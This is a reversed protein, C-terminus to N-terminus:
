DIWVVKEQINGREGPLSIGEVPVGLYMLGYCREGEELYPISDKGIIMKPSSWYCGLNMATCSLYMNQIACSLAALEEWEPISEAPDRRVCLAIVHSSTLIKKTIRKKKNENYKEPSITESYRKSMFDALSELASGTFVKFRWPETKKHNPAWQANELIAEIQEKSIKEETYTSPFISRRRKILDTLSHIDMM